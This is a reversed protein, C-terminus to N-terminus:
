VPVKLILSGPLLEPALKAMVGPEVVVVPEAVVAAEVVVVKLETPMPLAESPVGPVPQLLVPPPGGGGGTV